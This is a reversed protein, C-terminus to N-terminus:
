FPIDSTDNEPQAPALDSVDMPQDDPSWDRANRSDRRATSSYGGGGQTGYNGGQSGYSGGGGQDRQGSSLFEIGGFSDAVVEIVYRKSGDKAEYNRTQIRGNVLVPRGKTLFRECAEATRGWVVVPIFDCAENGNKDPIRNCALTFSAVATGSATYRVEPPKTLNGTLTVRNTNAHSM